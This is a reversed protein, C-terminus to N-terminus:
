GEALLQKYYSQVADYCECAVAELGARNQIEVAGRRYTILGMRQIAAASATVTKRQVGLAHAIDEHTLRLAAHPEVRDAVSLLFRALRAEIPHLANCAAVQMVQGDLADAHRLLLQALAPAADLAAQRSVMPLFRATGPVQVVQRAVRDCVVGERGVLGVTAANGASMPVVLSVVCTEPFWIREPQECFESLVDGRSLKAAGLYPELRCLDSPTLSALLHNAGFTVGALVPPQCRPARSGSKVLLSPRNSVGALQIKWGFAGRPPPSRLPPCEDTQGINAVNLRVSPRAWQHAVVLCATSHTM